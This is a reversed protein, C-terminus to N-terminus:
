HPLEYYYEGSYDPYKGRLRHYGSPPVSDLAALLETISQLPENNIHTIVFDVELNADEVPSNRLISIVKLGNIGLEEVEEPRLESVEFGYRRLQDYRYVALNQSRNAKDLLRVVISRRTRNRIYSVTVQEGPRYRSLQEQLEAPSNIDADNISLLIDGERLGALEAAGQRRIGTIIAGQTASLRLQRAQDGSISRVYAGLVARQVEGFQRLDALIRQALNGPIAFAFGEHRGSNTIIATNIGVLEGRTSILAGGSNGPNVAADSQIFSEIRDEGELVDISRGKASVIGATVTNELQFPNGVAMVWEGVRLSDSNGFQLFPLQRARIRLLALDTPGDIGIVEADFSRRDDLRISIRSAGDIVHKNTAIYGDPSIIVGSGSMASREANPEHRSFARSYARVAVVSPTAQEAAISFTTPEVPPIAPAEQDNGSQMWYPLDAQSNLLLRDITLALLASGLCCLLLVLYSPSKM